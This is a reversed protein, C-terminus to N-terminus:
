FKLRKFIFEPLARIVSMIMWWYVPTYVVEKGKVIANYIDKAVKEPSSMLPKPINMGKTMPTDVFGPKVTIVKIGKDFLRARLGSLYQTLGAKASGYIFNKARGRDGAVSSIVAITGRGNREMYESVINLISVAGLYNTEIIKRAEEFDKLAKENDVMYGFAVLVCHVDGFDNIVEDWFRRHGGYDVADFRKFYVDCGYKIKLHNVFRELEKLNRSALLLRHHNKCLIEATKKAIESNAGLIVTNM